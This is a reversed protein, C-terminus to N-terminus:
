HQKLSRKALEAAIRKCDSRHAKWDSVQCEKSCYNVSKCQACKFMTSTDGYRECTPHSCNCTTPLKFCRQLHFTRAEEKATARRDKYQRMMLEQNFSVDTSAGARKWSRVTARFSEVSELLFAKRLAKKAARPSRLLREAICHSPEEIIEFTVRTSLIAAKLIVAVEIRPDAIRTASSGKSAVWTYYTGDLEAWALEFMPEHFGQDGSANNFLFRMMDLLSVEANEWEKGIVYARGRRLRLRLECLVHPLLRSDEAEIPLFQANQVPNKAYAEITSGYLDGADRLRGCTELCTAVTYLEFFLDDRHQSILKLDCVIHAVDLAEKWWNRDKYENTLTTAINSVISNGLDCAALRLLMHLMRYILIQHQNPMLQCKGLREDIWSSTFGIKRQRRGDADIYSVPILSITILMAARRDQDLEYAKVVLTPDCEDLHNDNDRHPFSFPDHDARQFEYKWSLVLNIGKFMNLYLRETEESKFISDITHLEPLEEISPRQLSAYAPSTQIWHLDDPFSRAWGYGYLPFRTSYLDYVPVFIEEDEKQLLKVDSEQVEVLSHFLDELLMHYPYYNDIVILLGNHDSTWWQRPELIYGRRGKYEGRTLEVFDGPSYNVPLQQGDVEAM